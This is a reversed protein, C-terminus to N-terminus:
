VRTEQGPCKEFSSMDPSIFPLGNLPSMSDLLSDSTFNGVHLAFGSEEPGVAIDGFKATMERM